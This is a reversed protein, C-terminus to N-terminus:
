KTDKRIYQILAQSAEHYLRRSLTLVEGTELLVSTRNLKQIYALNVLCSRHIRFFTNQPLQKELENLNMRFTLEQDKVHINVTHSFVEIYRIEDIYIRTIEGETNLLLSARQKTLSQVVHSLVENLKEQTVPKLLYHFAHVEYGQAMYDTFGTIFIIPISKDVTRIKKALEMGDMQKMQVDLLLLDCSKDEIWEFWFSEASSFVRMSTFIGTMNGWVAIKEKLYNLQTIEDDCIGITLMM